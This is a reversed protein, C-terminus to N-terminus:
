NMFCNYTNTKSDLIIKYKGNKITKASQFGLKLSTERNITFDEELIFFGTEFMNLHDKYFNQDFNITLGNDSTRLGFIQVIEELSIDITFKCLGFGGCNQSVRGIEIHIKSPQNQSNAKQASGNFMFMFTAILGFVVKKM